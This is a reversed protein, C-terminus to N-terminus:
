REKLSAKSGASKSIDSQPDLKGTQSFTVEADRYRKSLRTGFNMGQKTLLPDAGIQLFSRRRLADVHCRVLLSHGRM